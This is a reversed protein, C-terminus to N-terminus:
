HSFMPLVLGGPGLGKQWRNGRGLFLMRLFFSGWACPSVSNLSSYLKGERLAREHRLEREPFLALKERGEGPQSAAHEPVSEDCLGPSRQGARWVGTVGDESLGELRGLKRWWLAQRLQGETQLM